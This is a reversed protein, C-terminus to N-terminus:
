LLLAAIMASLLNALTGGIVAVLGMQTLWTRRDPALAGIGGIQLGISSFNAFGCLAYTLIAIARDPLQMKVMNTYAIMENIAVKTGLLSGAKMAVDGTFGLLYAFPAGLYGFILQFSLEPLQWALGILEFGYNLYHGIAGLVYDGFAILALFSILFAGIALALGLGDMTGRSIADFINHTDTELKLDTKEATTAKDTEPLLIKSILIAAPVNMVSAALLHIVPIGISAYVILLAGSITAMGSIMVLLIESRTMANLYHRVLLPAETQGLLSNACAVLTEAGSTKFLPRLVHNIGSMVLQILNWHFLLATLAAFFITIPLVKVAFIFGWPGSADALSGFVFRAGADAFNGLKDVYMALGEVITRGVMTKLVLFGLLAQLGLAAAVLRFSVASRKRSLFFAIALIVVIGLVNLYRNHELFYSIM